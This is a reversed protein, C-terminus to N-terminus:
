GVHRYSAFVVEHDVQFGLREYLRIAGENDATVHLFPLDGRELIGAAVAMTLRAGLGRGRFQPDTCVASVETWGPLRFREGAMAVLRGEHRIGLHRGLEVTRKRFPGPQAREVLDLIEPVDTETLVVTGADRVGTMGHGVMQVGPTARDRRWSEPPHISPGTLLAHDTLTALDGWAAPDALDAVACFPAVESTYRAADGAAEAFCAQPGSLAAWVPNELVDRGQWSAAFVVLSYGM